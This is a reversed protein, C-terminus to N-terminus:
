LWPQTVFVSFFYRFSVPPSLNHKYTHASACFHLPQMTVKCSLDKLPLLPFKHIFFLWVIQQKSSNQQLAFCQYELYSQSGTKLHILCKNTWFDCPRREKINIPATPVKLWYSLSTHHKWSPWLQRRQKSVANLLAGWHLLPSPQLLAAEFPIRGELWGQARPPAASSRTCAPLIPVGVSSCEYLM